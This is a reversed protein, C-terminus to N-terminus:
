KENRSKIKKNEKREVDLAFLVKLKRLTASGPVAPRLGDQAQQPHLQLTILLLAALARTLVLKVAIRLNRQVQLLSCLTTAPDLSTKVQRSQQVRQLM